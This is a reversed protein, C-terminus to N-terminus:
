FGWVGHRPKRWVGLHPYNGGGHGPTLTTDPTDQRRGASPAGGGDCMLARSPPCLAGGGVEAYCSCEPPKILRLTPCHLCLHCVINCLILLLGM